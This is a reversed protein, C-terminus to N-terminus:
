EEIKTISFTLGFHISIARNYLRQTEGENNPELQNLGTSNRLEAFVGAMETFNYFVGCYANIGFDINKIDKNELMDYYDLGINQEAKYLYSFYLSAGVYPKFKYKNIIYGGGLNLDAYHLSWSLKQNNLISVAGLNKYGLEPRLYLGSSFFKNYNLGYSYRVDSSLNEDANGESDIFKFKSYTQAFHISFNDQANVYGLFLVLILLLNFKKM